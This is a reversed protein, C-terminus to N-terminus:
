NCEAVQVDARLAQGCQEGALYGSVKLGFRQLLKLIRLLSNLM